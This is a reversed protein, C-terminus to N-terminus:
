LGALGPEIRTNGQEVAWIDMAISLLDDVIPIPRADLTLDISKIYRRCTECTEIRVNPHADTQFVPLKHPDEEFCSACQLRNVQWELACLACSLYRFGSEADKAPKRASIWPAGGCFPCHGRLHLRDPTVNRVRLTEVYPQLIARTLYDERAGGGWYVLMRTEAIHADDHLRKDAEVALLEPGHEAAMRLVPQQSLAHIDKTLRGSLSDSFMARSQVDCLRSAFELPERAADASSALLAARAGRQEFSLATTAIL